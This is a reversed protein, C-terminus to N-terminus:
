IMLWQHECPLGGRQGLFNETMLLGSLRFLERKSKNGAEDVARSINCLVHIATDLRYVHEMERYGCREAEAKLRPLLFATSWLWPIPLGSLVHQAPPITRIM